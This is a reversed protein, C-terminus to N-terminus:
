RVAARDDTETLPAATAAQLQQFVDRIHRGACDLAVRSATVSAGYHLFAHPVAQMELAVAGNGCANLAQALKRSDDRLPDLASWLLFPRAVDQLAGRLPSAAPERRRAKDPAYLDWYMAMSARSLGYRGDGLTRYSDTELDADYVGYFLAHADPRRAGKRALTLSAGLALNAGASDGAIALASVDVALAPGQRTLWAWSDVVDDLPAPFPHEPAKRYAVALVAADAAALSRAVRDHTDLDGTVWGGGHLFLIVGRPAAVPKFLRAPLSRGPLDLSLEQTQAMAPGGANWPLRRRRTELRAAVPDAPLHMPPPGFRELDRRLASKLESNFDDM